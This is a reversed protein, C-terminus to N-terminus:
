TRRNNKLGASQVKIFGTVEVCARVCRGQWVRGSESERKRERERGSERESVRERECRAERRGNKTRGRTELKDKRFQPRVRGRYWQEDLLSEREKM